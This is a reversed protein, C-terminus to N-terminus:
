ETINQWLKTTYNYYLTKQIFEFFCTTKEISINKKLKKGPRTPSPPKPGLGGGLFLSFFVSLFFNLINQKIFINSLM